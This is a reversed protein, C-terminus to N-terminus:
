FMGSVHTDCSLLVYTVHCWGLLSEQWWWTHHLMSVIGVRGLVRSMGGVHLFM